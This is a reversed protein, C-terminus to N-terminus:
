IYFFLQIFIFDNTYALVFKLKKVIKEVTRRKRKKAEKNKTKQARAVCYKM